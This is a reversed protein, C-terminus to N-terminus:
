EGMMERLEAPLNDDIWQVCFERNMSSFQVRRGSRTLVQYLRGNKQIFYPIAGGNTKSSSMSYKAM